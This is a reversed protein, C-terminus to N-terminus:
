QRREFKVKMQFWLFECTGVALILFFLAEGWIPFAYPKIWGVAMLVLTTIEVFLFDRLFLRVVYLLFRLHGISRM